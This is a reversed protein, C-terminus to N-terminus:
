SKKRCSPCPKMTAGYGVIDGLCLTGRVPFTEIDALVADLADLNAHIDSIIAFFSDKSSPM